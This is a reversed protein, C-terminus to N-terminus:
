GNFKKALGALKDEVDEHIGLWREGAAKLAKTLAQVSEANVRLIRKPQIVTFHPM